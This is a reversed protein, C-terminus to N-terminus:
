LRICRAAFVRPINSGHGIQVSRESGGEPGEVPDLTLHPRHALTAHEHRGLHRVAWLQEDLHQRALEGEGYIRAPELPLQNQEGVPQAVRRERGGSVPPPGTCEDIM